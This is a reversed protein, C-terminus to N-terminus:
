PDLEDMTDYVAKVVNVHVFVVLFDRTVTNTRSLSSRTSPASTVTPSVAQVVTTLLRGTAPVLVASRADTALIRGLSAVDASGYM